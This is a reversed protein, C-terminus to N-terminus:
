FGRFQYWRLQPRTMDACVEFSLAIVSAEMLAAHSLLRARQLILLTKVWGGTGLSGSGFSGRRMRLWKVSGSCLMALWSGPLCSQQAEIPAKHRSEKSTWWRPLATWKVLKSLPRPEAEQNGLSPSKRYHPSSWARM